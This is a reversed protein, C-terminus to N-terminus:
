LYFIFVCVCTKKKKEYVETWEDAGWIGRTRMSWTSGGKGLAKRELAAGVSEGENYGNYAKGNSVVPHVSTKLFLFLYIM